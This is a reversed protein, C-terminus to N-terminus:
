VGKAFATGGSAEDILMLQNLGCVQIILKPTVNSATGTVGEAKLWEFTNQIFMYAPALGVFSFIIVRFGM